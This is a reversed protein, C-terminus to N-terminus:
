VSLDQMLSMVRLLLDKILISTQNNIDKSVVMENIAIGVVHYNRVVGEISKLLERSTVGFSSACAVGPAYAPDVVDIDISLFVKSRLNPKESYPQIDTVARCYTQNVLVGFDNKFHWVWNGHNLPEKEEGYTDTHADYHIISLDQHVNYLGAGVAYSVSDDGGIAILCDTNRAITTIIPIATAIYEEIDIPGVYINGCDVLSEIQSKYNSDAYIGLPNSSIYRLYDPSQAQGSATIGGIDSPLGIFAFKSRKRNLKGDESTPAQM